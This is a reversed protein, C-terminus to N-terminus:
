RRFRNKMFKLTKQMLPAVKKVAKAQSTSPGNLSALGAASSSSGSESLIRAAAASPTVTSSTGSGGDIKTRSLKVLATAAEAVKEHRDLARGTGYKAQQRAVQRPPKVAGDVFALKTQRVPVAKAMSACINATISRLRSTRAISMRYYLERWSEFEDPEYSKFERQCHLRWLEDTEDLIYPNMEELYLLRDPNCRLLAPKIHKYPAYMLDCLVAVNEQLVKVCSNLLTPVETLVQSKRGSFVQTRTHRPSMFTTGEVLMDAGRKFKSPPSDPAMLRLPKYDPQIAPLSSLIEVHSAFAKKSSTSPSTSASSSSSSGLDRPDVALLSPLCSNSKKPPPPPPPMLDTAPSRRSSSSSSSKRKTKKRAAVDSALHASSSTPLKSKFDNLGLCDEFSAMSANFGDGGSDVLKKSSKVKKSRDKGSELASSAHRASTKGDPRTMEDSKVVSESANPAIVHGNKSAAANMSKPKPKTPSTGVDTNAREVRVRIKKSPSQNSGASDSGDDDTVDRGASSSPQKSETPRKGNVIQRWDHVLMRALQGVDGNRKKLTSVTQSINTQELAALDIPYSRLKKLAHLVKDDDNTEREIRIKYHFIADLMAKQTSRSENKQREHGSPAVDM